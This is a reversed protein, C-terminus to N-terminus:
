NPIRIKPNMVIAALVRAADGYRPPELSTLITVFREAQHPELKLFRLWIRVCTEGGVQQAFELYLAWIRKHQSTPLAKLARDFTRRTFTLRTPQHMLFRCYTIWIVPFKNCLALCREFCGNILLWEQHAPVYAKAPRQLGTSPDIDTTLVRNVRFDLYKKWLKYCGPLEKVARELVFVISDFSAKRTTLHTSYRIWSKITFPHRICDEEYLLDQQPIQVMLANVAERKAQALALADEDVIPDQHVAVTKTELVKEEEVPTEEVTPNVPDTTPSDADLVVQVTDSTGNAVDVGLEDTPEPVVVPQEPEIPPETSPAAAKAARQNRAARTTKAAKRPSM